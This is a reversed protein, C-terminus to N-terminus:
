RLTLPSNNGAYVTAVAVPSVFGMATAKELSLSKTETLFKGELTSVASSVTRIKQEAATRGAAHAVAGLLFAGYMFVSLATIGVLVAVVKGVYQNYLTVAYM